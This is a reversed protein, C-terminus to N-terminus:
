SAKSGLRSNAEKILDEISYESLDKLRQEYARSLAAENQPMEAQPTRENMNSRVQEPLRSEYDPDVFMAEPLAIGRDAPNSGAYAESRQTAIALRMDRSMYPICKYLADMPARCAKAFAEKDGSMVLRSFNEPDPIDNGDVVAKNYLALPSLDAKKKPVEVPIAPKEVNSFIDDINKPKSKQTHAECLSDWHRKTMVFKAGSDTVVGVVPENFGFVTPDEPTLVQVVKFSIM